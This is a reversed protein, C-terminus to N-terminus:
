FLQFVKANTWNTGTQNFFYCHDEHKLWGPKCMGLAHLLMNM